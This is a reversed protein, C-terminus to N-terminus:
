EARGLRQNTFDMIQKRDEKSLELIPKLEELAKLETQKERLLNWDQTKRKEIQNSVITNIHPLDTISDWMLSLGDRCVELLLTMDYYRERNILYFEVADTLGDFKRETYADMPDNYWMKWTGNELRELDKEDELYQVIYNVETSKETIANM